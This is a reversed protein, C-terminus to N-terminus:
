SVAAVVPNSTDSAIVGYSVRRLLVRNDRREWRLVGNNLAQGGYGVGLTTKAIESVLLHDRNLERRPIEFLLRSGIRHVKYLGDRSRAQGTIVQSYPRPNPEPLGAGGAGGVGQQQGGQQPGQVAGAPRSGPQQAPSPTTSAKPKACAAGFALSALALLRPSQRM